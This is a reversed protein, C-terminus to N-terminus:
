VDNSGYHSLGHGRSVGCCVEATKRASKDHVTQEVFCFGGLGIFRGQFLTGM